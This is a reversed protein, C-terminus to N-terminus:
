GRTKAIGPAAAEQATPPELHHETLHARLTEVEDGFHRGASGFVIHRQHELPQELVTKVELDMAALFLVRYVRQDHSGSAGLHLVSLWVWGGCGAGGAPVNLAPTSSTRRSTRTVSALPRAM